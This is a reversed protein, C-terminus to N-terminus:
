QEILNTVTDWVSKLVPIGSTRNKERTQLVREGPYLIKGISEGTVSQHLNHIIDDITQAISPTNSLEAINFAIFVQSLGFETEHESIERTSKGGSLIVALLELLLSLGAGKWYGIPLARESDLIDSPNQTLDGNKDYGGAFPLAQNQMRYLDLKGNSYQSIAMDLVIAENNYPVAMILPNNGLRCDVAGWAPLNAITNTWCIFVYGAKAAKWGYTGGRMWHNTNALGICGIGHKDALEMARDTCTLSNIIGPGLNGDWQEIVGASHQLTAKQNIRVFGNKIDKVFTPFRNVGHTYVGDLSNETFVQACTEASNQNMGCQQLISLFVEKM